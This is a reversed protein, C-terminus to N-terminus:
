FGPDWDSKQAVNVLQYCTISDGEKPVVDHDQFSLGCEVGNRITDVEQKLHKMSYLPGKRLCFLYVVCDNKGEWIVDFAFFFIINKRGGM